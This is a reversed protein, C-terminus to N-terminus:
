SSMYSMPSMIQPFFTQGMKSNNNSDVSTNNKKKSRTYSAIMGLKKSNKRRM